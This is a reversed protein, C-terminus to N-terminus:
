ANATVGYQERYKKVATLNASMNGDSQLYAVVDDLRAISIVPMGYLREVEQVASLEGAGREMRDLAIAV